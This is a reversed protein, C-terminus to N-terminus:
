SSMKKLAIAKKYVELMKGACVKDTYKERAIQAGEQGLKNRLEKDSILRNVANSFEKKDEAVLFGNKNNKVLDCIGTANVAVIPLGMYMAETIIMGQTESKSAYVFIDGAAYYNKIEGRKVVGEFIVQGELNNDESTKKLKPVLDGGGTILFKVQNNEKILPVLSDFIFEVNKEKTLRSVLLLLVEGDKVGYKDRIIKGDPNLFNSEDVGSSVAEISKNNVGWDQIIKKVSETPTIVFDCKNAYNAAKKIIYKAVWKAPILPVFHAYQDYLTHWTFVIPINKKKAWKMAASGLLNPHQSHIIDLKLDALIKDMKQSYSIALPFKIKYSIDLAPYRFIKPNEDKYNKYYPAFIFVSHGSKEFERRFSEISQTVGYPNPLYNNTFIAINM